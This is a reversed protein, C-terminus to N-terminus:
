YLLDVRGLLLDILNCYFIGNHDYFNHPIDM